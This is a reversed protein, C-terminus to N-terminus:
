KYWIFLQNDEYIWAHIPTEKRSRNAYCSCIYKNTDVREFGLSKIIPIHRWDHSFWEQSTNRLNLNRVIKSQSSAIEATTSCIHVVNTAVPLVNMSKVSDRWTNTVATYFRISDYNNFYASTGILAAMVLGVNRLRSCVLLILVFISFFLGCATRDVVFFGYPISQAYGALGVLVATLVGLLFSARRMEEKRFLCSLATIVSIGFLWFSLNRNVLRLNSNLSLLVNFTNIFLDGVNQIKNPRRWAGILLGWQGAVIKVIVLMVFYGLLYSVIWWLIIKFIKKISSQSIEKIYLLIVLNYYNNLVGFFLIGSVLFVLRYNVKDSLYASIALVASATLIQDPWGILSYFSPIQLSILTFVLRLNKDNTYHRAVTYSFFGWFVTGLLITVQINLHHLVDFLVLNIWRGEGKFHEMDNPIVILADHRVAHIDLVVWYLSCFLGLLLVVIAIDILKEKKNIFDFIKWFAYVSYGKLDLKSINCVNM